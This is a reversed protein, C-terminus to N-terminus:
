RKVRDHSFFHEAEDLIEGGGAGHQAILAVPVEGPDLLGLLDRGLDGERAAEREQVVLDVRWVSRGQPGEDEM